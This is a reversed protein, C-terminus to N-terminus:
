WTDDSPADAPADSPEDVPADAPADALPYSRVIRMSHDLVLLTYTFGYMDVIALCCVAHCLPYRLSAFCFPTRLTGKSHGM